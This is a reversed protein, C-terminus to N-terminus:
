LVGFDWSTNTNQRTEETAEKYQEYWHDPTKEFAQLVITAM